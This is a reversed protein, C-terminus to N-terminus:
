VCLNTEGPSHLSITMFCDTCLCLYRLNVETIKTPKFNYIQALHPLQIVFTILVNICPIQLSNEM